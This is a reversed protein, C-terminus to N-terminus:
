ANCYNKGDDEDDEDDKRRRRRKRKERERRRDFHLRRTATMVADRRQGSGMLPIKFNLLRKRPTIPTTADDDDQPRTLHSVLGPLMRRYPEQPKVPEEGM